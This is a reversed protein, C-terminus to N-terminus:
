IFVRLEYYESGDGIKLSSKEIPSCKRDRTKLIQRFIFFPELLLVVLILLYAVVLTENM